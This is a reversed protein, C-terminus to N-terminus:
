AALLLPSLSQHLDPCKAEPWDLLARENKDLRGSRGIPEKLWHSEGETLTDAGSRKAAVIAMERALAKKEAGKLKASMNKLMDSLKMSKGPEVIPEPEMFFAESRLAEDRSPSTVGTLFMLYNSIAQSYLQGWCQHNDHGRVADNIDFLVDVDVRSISTNNQGGCAFLLARLLNVEAEGIAGPKITRGSGVVGAGDVVAFKVQELCFKVLRDTSNRALTLITVLLQLETLTEVRGNKSIRAILWM